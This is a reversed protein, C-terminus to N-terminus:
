SALSEQELLRHIYTLLENVSAVQRAQRIATQLDRQWQPVPSPQSGRKTGLHLAENKPRKKSLGIKKKPTKGFVKARAREVTSRSIGLKAAAKVAQEYTPDVKRLRGKADRVPGATLNVAPCKAAAITKVILEAQQKQTLHRRRINTSIIYAVPDKIHYDIEASGDWPGHGQRELLALAELRNRGDILWLKNKSDEWLIPPHRLGHAKIDAALQQLEPPSMM